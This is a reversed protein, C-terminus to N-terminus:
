GQDTFYVRKVGNVRAIWPYPSLFGTFYLHLIDPRTRKLLASMQRAREVDFRHVQRAAEFSVNPLALFDRVAGEPLAQYCIASDGGGGRPRRSVGRAVGGGGGIRQPQVGFVSLVKM